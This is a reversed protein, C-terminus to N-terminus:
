ASADFLSDIGVELTDETFRLYKAFSSEVNGGTTCRSYLQGYAPVLTKKVRARIQYSELILKILLSDVETALAPDAV